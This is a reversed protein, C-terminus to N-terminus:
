ILCRTCTTYIYIYEVPVKEYNSSCHWNMKWQNKAWNPRYNAYMQISYESMYCDIDTTYGTKRVNKQKFAKFCGSMLQSHFYHFKIRCEQPWNIEVFWETGRIWDMEFQSKNNKTLIFIKNASKMKFPILNCHVLYKAFLEM